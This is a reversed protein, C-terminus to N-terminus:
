RQGPFGRRSDKKIRHWCALNVHSHACSDHVKAELLLSFLTVENKNKAIKNISQYRHMVSALKNNNSIYELLVLSSILSTNVIEELFCLCM